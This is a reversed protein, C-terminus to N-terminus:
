SWMRNAAAPDTVTTLASEADPVAHVQWGDGILLRTLYTRLDTDDEVVLVRPGPHGGDSNPHAWQDRPSTLTAAHQGDTGAADAAGAADARATIPIAVTFTSGAGPDSALDIRGDHATVLDAVVALGIGAGQTASDGSEEVAPARHFRDFVRTREDESIGPGTDTVALVATDTEARLTVTVAGTDTYKVANSVLNTVITSWMGRDVEAM